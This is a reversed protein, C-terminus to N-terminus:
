AVIITDLPQGRITTRGTKTLKTILAKAATNTGAHIKDPGAPGFLDIGDRFMVENNHASHGALVDPDRTQGGVHLKGFKDGNYGYWDSRSLLRSPDKWELWQGKQNSSNKNRVRLFVSRSGGSDVDASESMGVGPKTGIFRRHETAALVGGAALVEDLRGGGISHVLKRDKWADSLGNAAIDFREWTHTPGTRTPIPCYGAASAMETGSGYGLENAIADRLLETRKPTALHEAELHIRKAWSVMEAQTFGAAESARQSALLEAYSGALTAGTNTADRVSAAQDIGQAWANRLLYTYEAQAGSLARNALNLQALRGVLERHRGGGVPATIELLGQMGKAASIKADSHPRYRAVFGAGLDIEYEKGTAKTRGAVSHAGEAVSVAPRSAPKTVGVLNPGTAETDGAPVMVTVLRMHECVFPAVVGIDGVATADGAAAATAADLAPRYHDLMAAVGGGDDGDAADTLEAALANLKDLREKTHAPIDSSAASHHKVSKVATILEGCFDHEEDVELRDNVMADKTVPVLGDEDIIAELIKAEADPHVWGYLTDTPGDAGDYAVLTINANEFDAGAVLLSHGVLDTASLGSPIPTLADASDWSEDLGAVTLDPGDPVAPSPDPEAPAELGPTPDPLHAEVLEGELGEGAGAAGAAGDIVTVTAAPWKQGTVFKTAMATAPTDSEAVAVAGLATPTAQTQTQTQTAPTITNAEHNKSKGAGM